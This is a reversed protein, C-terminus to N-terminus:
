DVIMDAFWALPSYMGNKIWHSITQASAPKHPKITSIFLKDSNSRLNETRELYKLMISAVCLKERKKFFPVTLIPQEKGPRSTKILDPIKISLGTSSRTIDKINILALTQMRHATILILLTTLIESLEKLRLKSSDENGRTDVEEEVNSGQGYQNEASTEIINGSSPTSLEREHIEELLPLGGAQIECTPRERKRAPKKAIPKDTAKLTSAAKVIAKAEKVQETLKQGYLWEDSVSADLTPKLDKDLTPTIFSKRAESQQHFIDSLIKGTDWLHQLLLTQNVPETSVETLMSVATSLSSLASGVCSQTQKFHEDRKKAIETLHRQVELNVKPAETVFEGDRPYKKLLEKRVEESFGKEMWGKWWKKLKENVKVQCGSDTVEEGLVDLLEDDLEPYDDEIIVEGDEIDGDNPKKMESVKDSSENAVSKESSENASDVPDKLAQIEVNPAKNAAKQVEILEAISKAMATIQQQLDRKSIKPSRSRDRSTSHSRRPSRSRKRSKGM